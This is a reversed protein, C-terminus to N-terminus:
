KAHKAHKVEPKPEEVLEAIGAENVFFAGFDDPLEAVEGAQYLKGNTLENQVDVLFKVKM